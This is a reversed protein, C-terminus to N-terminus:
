TSCARTCGSVRAAVAAATCLMRIPPSRALMDAVCTKGSFLNPFYRIFLAKVSGNGRYRLKILVQMVKKLM